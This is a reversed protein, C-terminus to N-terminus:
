KGEKKIHELMSERSASMLDNLEDAAQEMQKNEKWQEVVQTVAKIPNINVAPVQNNNLQKGVKIGFIFASVSMFFAVVLVAALILNQVM